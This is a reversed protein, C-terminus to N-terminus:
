PNAKRATDIAARLNTFKEHNGASKPVVAIGQGPCWCFRRDRGLRDLRATDERAANNDAEQKRNLEMTRDRSSQLEALDNRLAANDARLKVLQAVVDGHASEMTKRMRREADLEAVLEPVREGVVRRCSQGLRAGLMKAIAQADWEREVALASEKWARLEGLEGLRKLLEARLEFMRAILMQTQYRAVRSSIEQYVEVLEADSYESAPPPLQPTDSM